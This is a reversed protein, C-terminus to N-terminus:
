ATGMEWSSLYKKQEETLEDIDIEMSQLKLRAVWDEITDPVNYVKATLKGGQEIVYETALAQTALFSYFM